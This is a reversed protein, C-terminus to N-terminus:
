SLAVCGHNIRALRDGMIGPVISVFSGTGLSLLLTVVLILPAGKTRFYAGFFSAMRATADGDEEVLNTNYSVVTGEILSTGNDSARSLSEFENNRPGECENNCPHPGPM